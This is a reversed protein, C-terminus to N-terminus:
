GGAPLSSVWYYHDCDDGVVRRWTPVRNSISSNGRGNGLPQNTRTLVTTSQVASRLLFLSILIARTLHSTRWQVMWERHHPTDLTLIIISCESGHDSAMFSISFSYLSFSPYAYLLLVLLLYLPWVCNQPCSSCISEQRGVARSRVQGIKVENKGWREGPCLLREKRVKLLVRWVNSWWM